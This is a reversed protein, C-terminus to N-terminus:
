SQDINFKKMKRFLTKRSIGLAVATRDRHWNNESLARMILDKENAKLTM